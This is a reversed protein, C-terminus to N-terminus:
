KDSNKNEAANKAVIMVKKIHRSDVDLIRFRVGNKGEIVEGRQPIREIMLFVLGGLTDAEDEEDKDINDRLDWGTKEKIVDLEAKGDAIIVNKSQVVIEPEKDIDYEDEIDGVIEELLDEITVLGDVGGYEDVVLAIHIKNKQMDSLLDLVRMAPSVFKISDNILNEVRVKNNGRMLFKAVDIIHVMGIIDDLTKGYVPIRSHGKDVMLRSIEEVTGDKQFAIIDARPIMVQSCKKDKLYLINNLLLQEQESLQNQGDGSGAEELLDEITERVTEHRGFKRCVCEWFGEEKDNEEL